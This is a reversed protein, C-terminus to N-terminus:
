QHTETIQTTPKATECTKYGWFFSGAGTLGFAACLIITIIWEMKM